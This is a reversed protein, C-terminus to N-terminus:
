RGEDGAHVPQCRICFWVARHRGPRDAVGWASALAMVIFLGSQERASVALNGDWEESGSDEVEGWTCNGASHQLRVTFKGGHRGSRSHVVANASLESFLHVADEETPCGGLLARVASRVHKIQDAAGPFVQEWLWDGSAHRLPPM